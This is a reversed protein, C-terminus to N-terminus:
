IRYAQNYAIRDKEIDNPDIAEWNIDKGKSREVSVSTWTHGGFPEVFRWFATQANTPNTGILVAAAAAICCAALSFIAAGRRDLGSSGVDGALRRATTSESAVSAPTELASENQPGRCATLLQKSVLGFRLRPVGESVSRTLIETM